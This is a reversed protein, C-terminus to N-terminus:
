PGPQRAPHRGRRPPDRGAAAARPGRPPSHPTAASSGAAPRAPSAPAAPRYGGRVANPPAPAPRPAPSRSPCCRRAARTRRPAPTTATGNTRNADLSRASVVSANRASHKSTSSAPSRLSLSPAIRRRVSLETPRTMPSNPTPGTMAAGTRLSTRVTDRKGPRPVEGPGRLPAPAQRRRSRLSPWIGQEGDPRAASLPAVHPCMVM